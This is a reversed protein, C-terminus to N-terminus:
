RSRVAGVRPSGASSAFGMRYRPLGTSRTSPCTRPVQRRSVRRAATRTVSSGHDGSSSRSRRASAGATARYPSNRPRLISSTSRAQDVAGGVVSLAAVREDRVLVGLLLAAAPLLFTTGSASTAVYNTNYREYM